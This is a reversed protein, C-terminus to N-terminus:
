PIQAFAWKAGFRNLEPSSTMWRWSICGFELNNWFADSFIFKSTPESRECIEAVTLLIRKLIWSELKNPMCFKGKIPTVNALLSSAFQLDVCTLQCRYLDYRGVMGVGTCQKTRSMLARGGKWSFNSVFSAFSNQSSSNDRWCWWFTM